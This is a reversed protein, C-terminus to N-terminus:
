EWCGYAEPCFQPTFNWSEVDWEEPMEVTGSLAFRWNRLSREMAEQEDPPIGFAEAFSLRAEPTIARPEIKELQRLNFLRLERSLRWHYSEVEQWPLVDPCAANRMLALAYEQLVPVGANLILETLGITNVLKARCRDVFYKTGSLATSMVKHPNRVFRVKGPSIEIVKSQCWEVQHLSSAVSEVKLEHGYTLFEEQIHSMVWALDDEEVFLLCDDGDDLLDYKKGRMFTSVMLVMLLCNGLATNMDGSMRKGRVHYKIGKSSVCENELQWSLLEAFWSDPCMGKYILHELKLLEVDVHQDFRSADLSLVCPRTFDSMKERLLNAREVSNLGKGIVRGVPLDTGNGRLAYLAKEIPKLFRGVDVCYKADRFQIARPDPNVKSPNLREFKVFMKVKADRRSVGGGNLVNDTARTYRARKQGAYMNPLVYWDDPTTKPLLTVLRRAQKRLKKLGDVSPRPVEGMVRNHLATLQNHLCDHHAFPVFNGDFDPRAIRVFRRRHDCGTDEPVIAVKCGPALPKLVKAGACLAPM